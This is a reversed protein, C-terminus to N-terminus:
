YRSLGIGTAAGDLSLTQPRESEPIAPAFETRPM